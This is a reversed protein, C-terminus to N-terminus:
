RIPPGGCHHPASSAPSAAPHAGAATTPTRSSTPSAVGPDVDRQPTLSTAEIQHVGGNGRYGLCPPTDHPLHTPRERGLKLLFGDALHRFQAM